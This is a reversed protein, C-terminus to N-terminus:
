PLSFPHKDEDDWHYGAVTMYCSHDGEAPSEDDFKICLAEMAGIHFAWWAGQEPPFSLTRIKPGLAPQNNWTITDADFTNPDQQHIAIKRGPIMDEFWLAYLYLIKFFYGPTKIWMRQINAVESMEIHVSALWEEYTGFNKNPFLLEVYSGETIFLMCWPPIEEGMYKLITQNMFWNRYIPQYDPNQYWWWSRDRPGPDPPEAGGEYPQLNWCVNSRSFISWVELQPPTGPQDIRWPYRKSTIGDPRAIIGVTKAKDYLESPISQTGFDVGFVARGFVAYGLAAAINKNLLAM